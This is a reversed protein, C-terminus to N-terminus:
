EWVAFGMANGTGALSRYCPVYEMSTMSLGAEAMVAAHTIWNKIESTGSEYYAEPIGDLRGFDDTRMAEIAIRDTPEDVVFHSLGGSGIVAVTSPDDWSEIARKLARGLDICRSAPIQNPPYFTNLIIPVNPVLGDKMLRRYVFGFAHPVGNVYGTGASISNSQGPDFGEGILAGIIHRGLPPCGPHIIEAPPAHGREAIAIGPPLTAVQERTRPRNPIEAGWYVTFAAMNEETFLEKQDNGVIVVVDPAVADIKAALGEIASQCRQYRSAWKEETIEGALDEGARLNALTDFDYAEGRFVLAPNACDAKVREGWKEWPTSLM